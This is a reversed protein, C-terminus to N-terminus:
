AKARAQLPTTVRRQRLTRWGFRSLGVISLLWYGPDILYDWLNDSELVNVVHAALPILLVIGARNGTALLCLVLLTCGAAVWRSEWDLAYIDYVPLGLVPLYLALGAIAGVAWLTLWERANLWQKHWGSEAAFVVMMAVLTLSPNAHASYGWRWLPLGRLPIWLLAALTLLAFGAPLQWPLERRGLFTQSAKTCIATLMVCACVIYSSEFLNM